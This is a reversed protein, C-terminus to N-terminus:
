FLGWPAKSWPGPRPSPSPEQWAWWVCVCVYLHPQRLTICHFQHNLELGHAQQLLLQQVRGVPTLVDRPAGQDVFGRREDGGPM